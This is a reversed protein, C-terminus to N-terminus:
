IGGRSWRALGSYANHLLTRGVARAKRNHATYKEPEDTFNDSSEPRLINSTTASPMTRELTFIREAHHLFNNSKKAYVELNLGEQRTIGLPLHNGSFIGESALNLLSQATISEECDGIEMLSMHGLWPYTFYRRRLRTLTDPIERAPNEEVKISGNHIGKLTLEHLGSLSLDVSYDLSGALIHSVENIKRKLYSQADHLGRWETGGYIQQLAISPVCIDPALEIAPQSNLTGM